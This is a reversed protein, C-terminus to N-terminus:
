KIEEIKGNKDMIIFSVDEDTRCLEEALERGYVFVATSYADCMESSSGTVTVSKLGSDAPYGNYPSIIHHYYKGDEAFGREYGGGTVVSANKVDTVCFYEGREKDPHQIGISFSRDGTCYINGGLDVLAWSHPHSRIIDCLRDAAYGKAVGGLDIRTDPSLFSIENNKGTVINKYSVKELNDKICRDSPVSPKENKIDWLDVLPKITIDFAGHTKRSYGISREIIGYLEDSVEFPSIGGNLNLQSIESMPSHVNFLKDLRYIERECEDLIQQAEESAVTLNIVTDFAFVTSKRVAPARNLYAYGGIATIIILILFLIGTTKKM